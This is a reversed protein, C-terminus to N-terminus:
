GGSVVLCYGVTMFRSLSEILSERPLAPLGFKKLLLAAYRGYLM